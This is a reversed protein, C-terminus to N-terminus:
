FGSFGPVHEEEGEWGKGITGRIKGGQPLASLISFRRFSKNGQLSLEDHWLKEFRLPSPLFNSNPSTAPLNTNGGGDISYERSARLM